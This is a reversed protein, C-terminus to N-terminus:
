ARRYCDVCFSVELDLEGLAAIAQQKERSAQWYYPTMALLHGIDTREQIILEYELHERRLHQLGEIPAVVDAHPRPRDYILRRLGFLHRPGPTVRVFLGGPKLVRRVEEDAAPAFLRVVCDQSANAVPLAANSAVAFRVEPYRRAAMRIAEKSIDIASVQPEPQPLVQGFAQALQGAYYGEGCGMDLLAFGAEGHAHRAELCLRLLLEALPHYYGRSLFERRSKLMQRDDGPEASHKRNAPLLNVYGEKAVDFSHGQGCRYQHELRELPGNCVPCFWSM